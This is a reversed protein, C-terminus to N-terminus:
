KKGGSGLVWGHASVTFQWPYMYRPLVEIQRTYRVDIYVHEAQLRVSVQTPDIPIELQQAADIVAARVEAEDAQTSRQAIQSVEDDFKYHAFYASGIRGVALVVLVIIILRILRGIM